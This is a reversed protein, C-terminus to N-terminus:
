TWQILGELQSWNEVEVFPHSQRNWPQVFVVPEINNEQLLFCTDLRDEVFWQVQDAKLVEHKVDFRGTTTIDVRFRDPPLLQDIWERIPGPYPRATVLRIPGFAHLRKLVRVVGVNPELRCPYNGDIIRGAAGSIIDPDLDLCANLDYQNIDEYAIHNVGYVEMLIDLFLQMTNALVGDIDFALRKPDIMQASYQKAPGAMTDM